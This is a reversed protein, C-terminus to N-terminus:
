SKQKSYKFCQKKKVRKLLKPRNSSPFEIDIIVGVGEWKGGGLFFDHM